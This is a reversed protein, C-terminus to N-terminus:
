YGNECYIEGREQYEKATKIINMIQQDSTQKVIKGPVGIVISNEPIITHESILCGAGIISHKGICAGNMIIAGMGILVEDEIRCGHLIANHGVSVCKGITLPYSQNCHLTCNDQINSGEEIVIKGNDGRIVSHFFISVKEQIEVSGIIDADKAIWVQNAIIPKNTKFNIIM